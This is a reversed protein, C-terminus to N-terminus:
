AVIDQDDDSSYDEVFKCLTATALAVDRTKIARRLEQLANAIEIESLSFEQARLIKPHPTTLMDSGILLEEHMKEGPRLGTFEIEIDGTPDDEDRVRYGSGVIMKRAVSLIHVPDGMDLVFVDGGRSFSGALLVLRVAESVTMFFRTVDPHTVTLPGGGRIQEEFLPIVSGSSGLVNGFRVMSFRTSDSREALDQVVLEAMRKSSGMVSTPRVAKDSSVLIFRDVNARRAEEALTRTGIVNNRLGELVNDEVLPLHKYAAAHLVIDVKHTHLTEAILEAHNISGLVAVVITETETVALERNITYLALESHDLLVLIEPRYSLIQRCLESGISGGAGTVLIRRGQYAESAAPLDGELASRGLLKHPEMPAINQVEKGRLVMEAFSPLALVECGVDGLEREIRAQVAPSVSPMALVIRDIKHKSVIDKINRPAHIKMGGITMKQLGVKDDVFCVTEFEDDTRLAAALQHGTQGAGYILVRKRNQARSIIRAVLNRVAIRSGVSLVLFLLAFILFTSPGASGNTFPLYNCFFGLLGLAVSLRAANVMDTINYVHLKVRHLGFHLILFAGAALLIVLYWSNEILAGTALFSSDFLVEASIFAVTIWLLDMGLLFLSKQTRTLSKIFSHLM